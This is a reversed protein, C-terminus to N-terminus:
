RYISRDLRTQDAYHILTIGLSTSYYLPEEPVAKINGKELRPRCNLERDSCMGEKRRV